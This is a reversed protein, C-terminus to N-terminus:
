KFIARPINFIYLVQSEREDSTSYIKLIGLAIKLYYQIIIFYTVKLFKNITSWKVYSLETFRDVKEIENSFTSWKVYQSPYITKCPLDNYLDDSFIWFYVCYLIFTIRFKNKVSCLYMCIYCDKESNHM